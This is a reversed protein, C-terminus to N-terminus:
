KLVRCDTRLTGKKIIKNVEKVPNKMAYRSGCNCMEKLPDKDIIMTYLTETSPAQSLRAYEEYTMKLYAVDPGIGRNDLLYGMKLHTPVPYTNGSKVDTPAPYSVIRKKDQSLIVPVNHDYNKKTKYVIVPPGTMANKDDSQYNAKDTAFGTLLILGILIGKM